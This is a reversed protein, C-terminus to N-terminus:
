RVALTVAERFPPMFAMNSATPNPFAVAASPSQRIASDTGAWTTPRTPGVHPSVVNCWRRQQQRRTGAGDGHEPVARAGPRRRQPPDPEEGLVVRRIGSQCHCLVQSHALPQVLTPVVREGALADRLESEIRPLAGAGEGASLLGLEREREGHGFSGLQEQQVFRDGAEVRQRGSLEELAQHFDDGGVADADHQGGM